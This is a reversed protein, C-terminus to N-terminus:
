IYKEFIYRIHDEDCGELLCRPPTTLVWVPEDRYGDGIDTKLHCVAWM